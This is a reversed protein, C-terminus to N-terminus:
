KLLVAKRTFINQNINLVIYYVGSSISSPNWYIKHVGAVFSKKPIEDVLRGNVDFINLKVVGPKKLSFRITTSANFPNPYVSILEFENPIYPDPDTMSLILDEPLRMAPDGLLFFRLIIDDPTDSIGGPLDNIVKLITKGIPTNPHSFLSDYVSKLLNFPAIAYTLGAPAFSAITGGNNMLLLKEVISLTDELDYSQSTTNSFFIFPLYNEDLKDMDNIYLFSTDAMIFPNAHGHYNLFLIGKNIIEIIDEKTGYHSSETRRYVRQSRYYDPIITEIFEDCQNEFIFEGDRYDALGLYDMPYDLRSINNEFNLIKNVVNDLEQSSSIPLRGVAIDPLYADEYMNIAYHNDVSVSDEDFITDIFQSEVRYSPIIDVDGVLILYQPKPDAWYELTYSVFHRIAEKQSLTDQFQGYIDEVDVFMTKLDQSERLSVLPSLNVEFKKSSIILYDAQNETSSLDSVQSQVVGALIFLM